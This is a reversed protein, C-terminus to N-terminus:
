KSIEFISRTNCMNGVERPAGRREKREEIEGGRGEREKGERWRAM